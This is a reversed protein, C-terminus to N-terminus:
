APRRRLIATGALLGLSLGVVDALADLPDASRHPLLTGQIVESLVAHAAFVVALLRWRVGAARLFLAPLAFMGLHALKDMGPLDLLGDPGDPQAPAYLGYLQVLLFAAGLALLIWRGAGSAPRAAPEASSGPRAPKM